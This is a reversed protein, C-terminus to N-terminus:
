GRSFGAAGALLVAVLGGGLAMIRIATKKMIIGRLNENGDGHDAISAMKWPVPPAFWQAGSWNASLSRM